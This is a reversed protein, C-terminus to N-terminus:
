MEEPASATCHNYSTKIAMFTMFIIFPLSLTIRRIILHNTSYNFNMFCETWILKLTFSNFYPNFLKTKHIPEIDRMFDTCYIKLDKMTKMTFIFSM